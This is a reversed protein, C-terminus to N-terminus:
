RAAIRPQPMGVVGSAGPWSAPVFLDMVQGCCVAGGERLRAMIDASSLEETRVCVRCRSLSLRQRQYGSPSAPRPQEDAPM